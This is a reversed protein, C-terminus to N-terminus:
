LSEWLGVVKGKKLKDALLFADAGALPFLILNAVGGTTLWGLGCACAIAIGKAKQGLVFQGLGPLLVASCFAMIVPDRPQPPPKIMKLTTARRKADEAVKERAVPRQMEATCFACKTEQPQLNHGCFRCMRFGTQRAANTDQAIEHLQVPLPSTVAAANIGPVAKIAEDFTVRKQHVFSLVQVATEVDTAGRWILSQLRVVAQLEQVHLLGGALLIRLFPEGGNKENACAVELQDVSIVGAETLLIGIRFQQADQKM